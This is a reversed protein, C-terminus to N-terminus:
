GKPFFKRFPLLLGALSVFDLVTATIWGEGGKAYDGVVSITLLIPLIWMVYWAWREFKRYPVYSVAVVFVGFGLLIGGALQLLFTIAAGANPSSSSFSSLSQGLMSQFLPPDLNVGAMYAFAIVVEVIGVIFLLIWAREQYGKSVPTYVQMARREDL